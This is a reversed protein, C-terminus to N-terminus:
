PATKTYELTTMFLGSIIVIFLLYNTNFYNSIIGPFLVEIFTLLVYTFLTPMFFERSILYTYKKM